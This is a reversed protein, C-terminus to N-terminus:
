RTVGRLLAAIRSAVQRLRAEIQPQRPVLRDPQASVAVAGLLGADPRRLPVAACAWGALFEEREWAIGRNAVDTLEQDLADRDVTTHATLTRLPNRQLYEDRTPVDLDALLVKGFATAHPVEHFGFRMPQLRPCDPSDVVHVMVLESGRLVALYAACGTSEHLRAVERTVPRSLGLQRHLSMGLRHLETGLEYRRESRIHVLYGADALEGALRYVTPLPLGLGDAIERASAGGREAVLEIIGLARQLPGDASRDAPPRSSVSRSTM